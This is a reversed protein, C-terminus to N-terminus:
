APALVAADGGDVPVRCLGGKAFGCGFRPNDFEAGARGSPLKRITM